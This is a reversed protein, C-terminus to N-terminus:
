GASALLGRPRFVNPLCIKGFIAAALIRAIDTIRAVAKPTKNFSAGTEAAPIPATIAKAGNAAM